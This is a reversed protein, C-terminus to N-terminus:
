PCWGSPAAWRRASVLLHARADGTIAGIVFQPTVIVGFFATGLAFAVLITKWLFDFYPMADGARAQDMLPLSLGLYGSPVVVILLALIIGGLMSM